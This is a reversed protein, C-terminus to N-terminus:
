QELNRMARRTISLLKSITFPKEIFDTIGLTQADEANILESYGTCLVVPLRPRIELMKHILEVGTMKPMTMDTILLDFQDSFKRFHALAEVPDGFTTVQYGYKVFVTKAIKQMDSEDDVFLIRESGHLGYTPASETITKVGTKGSVPLYVRFTTGIGPESEVLIYGQHDTVIGHVVALGLGTGDGVTKTTFFPEFIKKTTSEDMGTGSDSVVIVIYNGPLVTNGGQTLARELKQDIVRIRLTGGTQRMSHFANTGLNMLVQHIQTPDALITGCSSIEHSIDITSPVTQRVM